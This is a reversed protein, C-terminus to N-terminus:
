ATSREIDQIDEFCIYFLECITKQTNNKCRMWEDISCKIFVLATSSVTPDYSFSQFEDEFDLLSKTVRFSTEILRIGINANEEM